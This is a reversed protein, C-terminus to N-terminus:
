RASGWAPDGTAWRDIWTKLDPGGSPGPRPATYGGDSRRVGYGGLMVHEAGGLVFYHANAHADLTALLATM